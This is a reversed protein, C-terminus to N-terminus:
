PAAAAPLRARVSRRRGWLLLGTAGLTALALGTVGVLIEHVPGGLAGTHLPYVVSVLRSGADLQSWRAVKLVEATAPHLWVSTLGNPHPDDPLKLRVRVPQSRELPVQVYGVMGQPDVSRAKRVLDDLSAQGGAPSPPSAIRPPKVPAQGFAQSVLGRLPPWAMYAGSAVAVAIVVGLVAGALNHLDLTARLTGARWHVKLTPPWRRPWWLVLGTVLLFLYAGAALTLVAKGTDGLLLASHLEFLLHYAGETEGRRGRERGAADFHITGEWPGRVYVWLTDGRERPPRFTYAAAVFERDLQRRVEELSAAQADAGVRQRFLDRHLWQDLPKAVTLLAGLLAALVLVWGLSLAVWRHLRLWLRRAAPKM